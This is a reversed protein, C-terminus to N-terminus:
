DKCSACKRPNDTANKKKELHAELAGPKIKRIEKAIDLKLTEFQKKIYPAPTNKINQLISKMKYFSSEYINQSDTSM